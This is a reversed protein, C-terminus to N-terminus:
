QALVIKALRVKGGAELRAFYVGSATKVGNKDRGNWTVSQQGALQTEDVLTAVRRGQADFLILHVQGNNPLFYTITTQTTLPNLHVRMELLRPQLTVEEVATVAKCKGASGAQFISAIEASTLVRDYIALEDILGEFPFLSPSQSDAGVKLPGDNQDLARFLPAWEKPSPLCDPGGNVFLRATLGDCTAAM